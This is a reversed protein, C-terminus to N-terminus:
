ANKPMHTLLHRLSRAEAVLDKGEKPLIGLHQEGEPQAEGPDSLSGERWYFTVTVDMPGGPILRGLHEPEDSRYPERDELLEDTGSVITTRALITEPPPGTQPICPFHMQDQYVRKM